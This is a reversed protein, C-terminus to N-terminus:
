GPITKVNVGSDKEGQGPIGVEGWVTGGSHEGTGTDRGVRKRGTSWLSTNM